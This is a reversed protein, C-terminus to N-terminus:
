CAHRLFGINVKLFEKGTIRSAWVEADLKNSTLTIPDPGMQRIASGIPPLRSTPDGCDHPSRSLLMEWEVDSEIAAVAV